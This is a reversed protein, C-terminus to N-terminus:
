LKIELKNRLDKLRNGIIIDTAAATNAITSQGIGGGNKMCSVYLVTAAFGLPVKGANIKSKVVESM